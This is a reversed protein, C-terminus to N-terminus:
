VLDFNLKALKIGNVVLQIFHQGVYHKRTTLNRFSHQKKFQFEGPPFNKTAIQFIKESYTGNKRLFYVLYELRIKNTTVGSQTECKLSFEFTLNAGNKIQAKELSFNQISFTKSGEDPLIDILALAEHNGKKLLTRLAHKILNMKVGESKWRKLLDLVLQPHTRSIDNLNNAVSKRVYEFEDFKLEELIPFIASPNKKFEELACGWPLRPRLGESALRRVHYNESKCWKAFFKLARKQDLKIFQRVAFEASGFETFFELAEMSITFDQLGFIEVFDSFVILSLGSYRHPPIKKVAKKLIEIQVSYSKESLFEHLRRTIFRMREKLELRQWEQKNISCFEEALFNKDCVLVAQALNKLFDHNYVEKLLM